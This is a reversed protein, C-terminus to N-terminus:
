AVNILLNNNRLNSTISFETDNPLGPGRREDRIEDLRFPKPGAGTILNTDAVKKRLPIAEMKLIQTSDPHPSTGSDSFGSDGESADLPIM